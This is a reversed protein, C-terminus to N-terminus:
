EPNRWKVSLTEIHRVVEVRIVPDTLDLITSHPSLPVEVVHRCHGKPNGRGWGVCVCVVRGDMGRM